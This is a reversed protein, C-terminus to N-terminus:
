VWRNAELLRQTSVYASAGIAAIIVLGVGSPPRDAKGVILVGEPALVSTLQRWITEAPCPKLYIATNRWLVIDWPGQEVGALMDAVKWRVQRRLAEVLRWHQGAPEFYEDRTARRVLKLM